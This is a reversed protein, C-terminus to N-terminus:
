PQDQSESAPEAPRLLEFYRRITQRHGLPISESEIASESLAEFKEANQRYERMAQSDDETSQENEKQSEGVLSDQGKLKMEKTGKASDTAAGKQNGQTGKGAKKGANGPAPTNGDKSNSSPVQMA